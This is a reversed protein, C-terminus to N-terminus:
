AAMLAPYEIKKLRLLSAMILYGKETVQYRFSRPVKAILHHARLKSLLRTIQGSIKPDDWKTPHFLSKKVDKNTFGNVSYAGDLLVSFINSCEKSLPNFSSYNRNKLSTPRCIRELDTIHHATTPIDALKDLYRKNAKLGIQSLYFLNTISKGMRVWAKTKKGNRIAQRYVKFELPNNITTEIRLINWKDYMKISNNKVRHKVRFGQPRRKRDSTVEGKFLGHYKKGLFGLIDEANFCRSAHEIFDSYICELSARSDFMVDTAFECQAVSWYYGYSTIKHIKGLHPNVIKAFHNFTSKWNKRELKQALKQVKQLQDIATFCNDYTSYEIGGKTLKKSLLERGNIYIQITFPFWSQIRVHMFGLTADNYYYYLHLCKRWQNVLELKQMQNKQIRVSMCIEVTALICILGETIHDRNM